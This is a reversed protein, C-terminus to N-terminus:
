LCARLTLNRARPCLEHDMCSTLWARNVDSKEPNRLYEQEDIVARIDSIIEIIIRTFDKENLSIKGMTEVICDLHKDPIDDLM